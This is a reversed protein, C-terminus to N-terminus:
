RRYDCMTLCMEKKTFQALLDVLKKREQLGPIEAQGMLSHYNDFLSNIKEELRKAIPLRDLKEARERLQFAEDRLSSTDQDSEIDVWPGAIGHDLHGECSGTTHIDHAKLAVVTDRIGPDIEKGLGDVIRAVEQQVEGWRAEPPSFQM